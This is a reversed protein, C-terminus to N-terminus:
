ETLGALQVLAKNQDRVAELEACKAHYLKLCAAYQGSTGICVGLFIGILIGFGAIPFLAFYSVM